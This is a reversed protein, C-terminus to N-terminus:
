PAEPTPESDQPINNPDVKIYLLPTEVTLVEVQVTDDDDDIVTVDKARVEVGRTTHPEPDAILDARQRAAVARAVYSPKGKVEKVGDLDEKDDNEVSIDAVKPDTLKPQEDVVEM